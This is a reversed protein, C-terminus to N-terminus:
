LFFYIPLAGNLAMPSFSRRGNSIKELYFEPLIHPFSFIDVMSALMSALM